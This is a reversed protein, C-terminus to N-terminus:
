IGGPQYFKNEVATKVSHAITSQIVIKAAHQLCSKEKVTQDVSRHCCVPVVMLSKTLTNFVLLLGSEARGKPESMM